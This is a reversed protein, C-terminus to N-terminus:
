VWPNGPLKEYSTVRVGEPATHALLPLETTFSEGHAVRSSFASENRFRTLSLSRTTFVRSGQRAKTTTALLLQM